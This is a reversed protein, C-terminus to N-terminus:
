TSVKTGDPQLKPETQRCSCNQRITVTAKATHFRLGAPGCGSEQLTAALAKDKLTSRETLGTDPKQTATGEAKKRYTTMRRKM